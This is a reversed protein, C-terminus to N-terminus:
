RPGHQDAHRVPHQRRHRQAASAPMTPTTTSTNTSSEYTSSSPPTGTDEGNNSNDYGVPTNGIPPTDNPKDTSANTTATCNTWSM